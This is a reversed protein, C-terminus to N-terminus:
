SNRLIDVLRDLRMGHSGKVLILDGKKLLSRISEFSKPGERFTVVRDPRAGEGLAGRRLDPAHPGIGILLDVKYRIAKGGIERHSSSAFRGLELMEGLIAVRRLSRGGIERFIELSQTMSDPNANYADNLLTWSRSSLPEMRGSKPRLHHLARKMRAPPVSFYDGVAIAALANSVNGKGLLKLSFPYLRRQVKVTFRQGALGQSEYRRVKLDPRGKWGFTRVTAHSLKRLFPSSSDDSNLFAVGSRPLGQLLEGKARAIGRITRLGQLHARGVNTIVGVQPAAIETLRRIEGPANMGMELVAIKHRRNLRFLTLPLGILNNFNGETKLVPYKEALVSAIMEKTTTKGNSGTVAVVPIPFCRRWRTALDGLAKLTDPVQIINLIGRVGRQCLPALPSKHVVAGVAGQQFAIKLYDHGDFNEGKLAFFLEGSKVTRSDTSVGRVVAEPSGSILRGGTAKVVEEMRLRM